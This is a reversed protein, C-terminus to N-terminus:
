ARTAKDKVKYVSEDLLVSSPNLFFPRAQEYRRLRLRQRRKGNPQRLEQCPVNTGRLILHPFFRATSTAGM